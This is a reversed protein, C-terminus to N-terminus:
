CIKENWNHRAEWIIGDFGGMVGYRCGFLADV